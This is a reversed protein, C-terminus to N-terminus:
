HHMRNKRKGYKNKKITNKVFSIPVVAKYKIAKNILNDIQEIKIFPRVGDHITVYDTNQPCSSLGAYVSKIRSDGGVVCQIGEFMKSLYEKNFSFDDQPLSVIINNIKKNKWFPLISWYLIPYNNITIFQKKQKKQMRLGKGAAVIIAYIKM